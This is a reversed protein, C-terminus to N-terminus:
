NNVLKLLYNVENQCAGMCYFVIALSECTFLLLPAASQARIEWNKRKGVGM